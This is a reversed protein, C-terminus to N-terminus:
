RWSSAWGVCIAAAAAAPTPCAIVAAAAAAAMSCPCCHGRTQLLSGSSVSCVISTASSHTQCETPVNPLGHVLHRDCDTHTQGVQGCQHIRGEVPADIRTDPGASHRQRGYAETSSGACLFCCPFCIPSSSARALAPQLGEGAVSCVPLQAAEFAASKAPNSHKHAPAVIAILQQKTATCLQWTTFM